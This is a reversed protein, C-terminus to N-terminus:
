LHKEPERPRARASAKPLTVVPPSRYLLWGALPGLLFILYFSALRWVLVAAAVGGGPTAGAGLAVAAEIFGSGGPTPVLHSILTLSALLALVEVLGVEAGYLRLLAWLITFAALWGVATFLHLALWTPVTMRRFVTASRHYDRAIGRLRMGFRRFIPWGAVALIARVVLRPHRTLIVAGAIALSIMALATVEANLPLAITDAYILFGLGLPASWVFFILDLVFIQVVMGIGKGAPVGLRGVAAVTTPAGGTNSPTLAAGLVAVLHVYLAPLYGIRIGQERCLMRIRLAPTMWEALLAVGFVAVYLFSADRMRYTDPALLADGAVLYLGGLGLALSLVLM